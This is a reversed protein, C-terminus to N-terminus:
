LGQWGGAREVLATSPYHHYHKLFIMQVAKRGRPYGKRKVMQITDAVFKVTTPPYKAARSAKVLELERARVKPDVKGRKV